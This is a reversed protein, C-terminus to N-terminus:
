KGRGKGKAGNPPRHRGNPAQNLFALWSAKILFKMSVGTDKCWLKMQEHTNPDMAVSPYKAM